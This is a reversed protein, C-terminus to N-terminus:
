DEDALKDGYERRAWIISKYGIVHIIFDAKQYDEMNKIKGDVLIHGPFPTDITPMGMGDFADPDWGVVMAANGFSVYRRGARKVKQKIKNHKFVTRM